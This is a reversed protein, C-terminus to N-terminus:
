KKDKIKVKHGALGGKQLAAIVGDCCEVLERRPKDFGWGRHIGIELTGTLEPMRVADAFSLKEGQLRQGDAGLKCKRLSTLFAQTWCRRLKNRCVAQWLAKKSGDTHVSWHLRNPNQARHDLKAAVIMRSGANNGRTHEEERSKIAPGPFYSILIGKASLKPAPWTQTRPFSTPNKPLPIKALLKAAHQKKDMVRTLQATLRIICERNPSSDILFSASFITSEIDPNNKTNITSDPGSAKGSADRSMAIENVSLMSLM